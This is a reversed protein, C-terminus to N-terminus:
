NTLKTQDSKCDHVIRKDRPEKLLLKINNQFKNQASWQVFTIKQVYRGDDDDKRKM